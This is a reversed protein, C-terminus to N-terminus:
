DPDIARRCVSEEPQQWSTRFPPIHGISCSTSSTCLIAEAGLIGVGDGETYYIWPHQKM